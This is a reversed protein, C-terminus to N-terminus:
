RLVQKDYWLSKSIDCFLGPAPSYANLKFILVAQTITAVVPICAIPLFYHNRWKLTRVRLHSQTLTYSRFVRVIRSVSLGPLAM